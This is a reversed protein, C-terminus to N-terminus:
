GSGSRSKVLALDSANITGSVIVDSRFNSNTVAQGVRAKTQSVDSATVAGNGNTDGALVGMQVSADHTSAGDNVGTLTLTVTQADSVNTLNLTGTRGDPSVIPSGAMSATKNQGPAVSAGSVTVATPFAFVIQHNSNTGGSRCEIGPNGTLPLSIDFTGASGHTKRSVVTPPAESISSPNHAVVVGGDARGYAFLSGDPSFQASYVATSTQQAYAHLLTGDSVRWFLIMGRGAGYDQGAAIVTEGDPSFGVSKVFGSPGNLSFLRLASAVQWLGVSKDDSATALKQGNPSFAVFNVAEDHGLWDVNWTSFNRLTAVSNAKGAALFAGDPSYAVSNTSGLQDHTISLEQGDSIRWVKIENTSYGGASTLEQDDPSFAIGLIFENGGMTRILSRDSVRWLRINRDM